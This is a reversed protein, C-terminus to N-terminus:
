NGEAHARKHVIDTCKVIQRNIAGACVFTHPCGLRVGHGYDNTKAAMVAEVGRGLSKWLM